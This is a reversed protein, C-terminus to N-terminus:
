SKEVKHDSQGGSSASAAKRFTGGEVPIRKSHDPSSDGGEERKLATTMELKRQGSTKMLSEAGNQVQNLRAIM